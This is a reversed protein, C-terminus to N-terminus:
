RPQVPRPTGPPTWRDDLPDGPARPSPRPPGPSPSPPPPPRRNRLLVDTEVVLPPAAPRTAVLAVRVRAVAAAEAAPHGDADFYAVTFRAIAGALNNTGGGVRREVQQQRANHQFRVDYSEPGRYPNGAPVRLTMRDTCLGAPPCGADPVVAEAWRAEEAIRELARRAHYQADLGQELAAGSRLMAVLFGTWAAAALAALGMALVVELVTLGAPRAGVSARAARAGWPRVM